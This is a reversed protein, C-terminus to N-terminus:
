YDNLLRSKVKNKILTAGAFNPHLEDDLYKSSNWYNIGCSHLDIFEAGINKCLIEIRENYESVTIDSSITPFEHEGISDYYM